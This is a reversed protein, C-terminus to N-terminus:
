KEKLFKDQLQKKMSADIGLAQELYGDVSGWHEKITKMATQYYQPYVLVFPNVEENQNSSAVNLAQQVAKSDDNEQQSLYLNTQMYDDFILSEDVGLASEILIAGLGTRDKGQTCHFIVAGESKLLIDFFKKWQNISYSDTLTNTYLMGMAEIPNQAVVQQMQQVDQLSPLKTEDFMALDHYTSGEISQDPMAQKEWSTRFDVVDSVPIEQLRALDEKTANALHGCRIFSGPKIVRGDKTPIGKLDRLNHISKFDLYVSVEKM